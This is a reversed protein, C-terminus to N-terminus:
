ILGRAREMREVQAASRQGIADRLEVFRRTYEIPTKSARMQRGLRTIRRELLWDRIRRIVATAAMRSLGGIQSLRSAVIFVAQPSRDIDRAIDATPEHPYRARIVAHEAETWPRWPKATTTIADRRAERTKKLGLKAAFMAVAGTSRGLDRAIDATLEHPFRARVIAAEASMWARAM